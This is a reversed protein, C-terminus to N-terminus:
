RQPKGEVDVIIVDGISLERVGSEIRSLDGVLLLTAKGPTAYKEAASNVAERTAKQLEGTQREIETMPMGTSWLNQIVSAVRGLSEFEQAYGRIRNNRADALEKESVPKGGAIFKLEKQFEAIAERTKNTQVGGSAMWLGYKSNANAFSFVGYSYGKEERINTGLRAGAGGGWVADALTLAYYDSASRAPGPLIQTVVTQAADARDVMFVKGPGVPQPPPVSLLPASGGSWSGFSRRSLDVADALTIDGAFILASSGPKWYAAHFRSLDEAALKEVTSPFGQGPRGYPHTPGYALMPGLRQSIANPNNNAQALADLRKKKERDVEEQPFNPSLAVDALIDMAAPLNRRLVDLGIAAFEAGAQM